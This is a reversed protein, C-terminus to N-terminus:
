RIKNREYNAKIILFSSFPKTNIEQYIKICYKTKRRICVAATKTNTKYETLIGHIYKKYTTMLAISLQWSYFYNDLYHWFSRLLYSITQVYTTKLIRIKLSNIFMKTHYYRNRYNFTSVSNRLEITLESISKTKICHTLNMWLPICTSFIKDNLFVVSNCFIHLNIYFLVGYVHVSFECQKLNKRVGLLSYLYMCHVPTTKESSFIM